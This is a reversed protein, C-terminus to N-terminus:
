KKGEVYYMDILGKNKVDVRGRYDCHFRHKVLDRTTGSINIKGPEGNQQMRAATNVTDGWIDYAFKKIGVVGAVLPGSHIGIRLQFVPKNLATREESMRNTAALIELAVHIMEVPNNSSGTNLGAACIYADGVTKIKEVGYKSTINDMMQFYDDICSVLVEPAMEESIRTFDVMDAFLVTVLDYNKAHTKGTNKLEEMVEAPLINLLLNDSREKEKAIIENQLEANARLENVKEYAKKSTGDFTLAVLFITLLFGIQAITNFHLIFEKNMDLQFHRGMIQSVGFYSMALVSILLYLFATGRTSVLIALIFPISLWQSTFPSGWLGGTTNMLYLCMSTILLLYLHIGLTFYGKQIVFLISPLLILTCIVANLGSNYHFWICIPIYASAYFFTFVVINIFLRKKNIEKPSLLAKEKIFSDVWKNYAEMM